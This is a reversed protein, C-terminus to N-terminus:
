AWGDPTRYRTPDDPDVREIYLDADDAGVTTLGWGLRRNRGILVLPTGPLTGGMAALDGGQIDALYWLSPASLWLHPDSALIPRGLTARSGDVVWANSAGALGPAPAPGFLAELPDPVRVPAEAFRAGEFLEAFRPLTVTAGDPAEPMIDAVREPPLALLLRARRIESQAAGTLRLAMMKLTAISDAPTWPALGETAFLFFEPAGRGLAREHITRIWANVGDAYAELAAQAEPSQREVARSAHGYLDLTKILRDLETTRTGLLTSLRGQAARRNLEMQWLRDQAHVLGLAFYADEANEARIHPVAHPDRVISVRAKLGELTLRADHDPLSGSVLYFALAGAAAGIALVATLVRLLWKLVLAM